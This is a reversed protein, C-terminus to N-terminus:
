ATPVDFVITTVIVERNIDDPHGYVGRFGNAGGYTIPRKFRAHAEAAKKAKSVVDTFGKKRSFLLIATKTDRWTLYGLLQDIIAGFAKEGGWIKCEAVFANGGGTRLYIDTKGGANYTEGTSPPDFSANLAVLFHGRLDEEGLSVFGRPNREMTESVRQIASLMREYEAESLASEPAFTQTPEADNQPDDGSRFVYKLFDVITELVVTTTLDCRQLVMVSGFDKSFSGREGTLQITVDFAVPAGTRTTALDTNRLSFRYREGNDEFGRFMDGTAIGLARLSFEYRKTAEIVTQLPGLKLNSCPIVRNGAEDNWDSQFGFMETIRVQQGLMILRQECRAMEFTLRPDGYLVLQGHALLFESVAKQTFRGFFIKWSPDSPDLATELDLVIADYDGISLLDELGTWPM